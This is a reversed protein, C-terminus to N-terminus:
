KDYNSADVGLYAREGDSADKGPRYIGSVLVVGAVRSDTDQFEKHALFSAVHFAGVAYGVVVVANRDGKYLDANEHIWSVAAAVDRAGAPWPNAPARRYTMAVGVMGNKAALCMAQDRMTWDGSTGQNTFSEGAVFLLVPRTASDKNGLSAVDVLNQESEGYKLGRSLSVGACADEASPIADDVLGAKAGDADFGLAFLAAIPVVVSFAFRKPM